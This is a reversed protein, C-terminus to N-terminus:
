TARATAPARAPHRTAVWFALAALPLEVFAMAIAEWFAAGHAPIINIWADCILLASTVAAPVATIAPRRQLAWATAALAAVEFVDLGTWAIKLHHATQAVPAATLVIVLSPVLAVAAVALAIPLWRSPARASFESRIAAVCLGIVVAIMAVLIPIAGAWHSAGVQTLARFWASIFAAAATFSAAVVGLPSGRHCTWATLLIGAIMGLILGGASPRIQHAEARPVQTIFLLVVWPTLLAACAWFLWSLHREAWAMRGTRGSPPSLEIQDGMRAM